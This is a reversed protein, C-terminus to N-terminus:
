GWSREAMVDLVEEPSIGQLYTSTTAINSHRLQRSILPISVKSRALDVACAHRLQHPAVRKTIGAERTARHLVTRVYAQNLPGGRTQGEVVPFLPQADTFGRRAREVIWEGVEELAKRDIGCLGRKGGKGRRVTVMCRDFNLDSPILLLAEHIRLGARWLVVTLARNRLGLTHLKPNLGPRWLRDLIAVVEEPEPPTPPYKKGANGPRLGKRSGPQGVGRTPEVTARRDLLKM